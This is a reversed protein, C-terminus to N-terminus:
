SAEKTIDYTRPRPLHSLDRARELVRDAHRLRVNPLGPRLPTAERQGLDLVIQEADAHTWAPRGPEQPSRELGQWILDIIADIPHGSALLNRTAAVARLRQEGCPVGCQIFTQAARGLPLSADGRDHVDGHHGGHAQGDRQDRAPRMRELWAPPVPALPKTPGCDPEWTYPGKDTVSPPVVALLGDSLIDIGDGLKGAGGVIRLSDPPHALYIHGGGSGTRVRTTDKPLPGLDREQAALTEFGNHRPDIDLVIVSSIRGTAISLNCRGPWQRELWRRIDREHKSAGKVGHDLRPHKGPTPCQERKWCTCIGQEDVGYCPVVHWGLSALLLADSLVVVEQECGSM